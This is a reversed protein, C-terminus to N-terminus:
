SLPASTTGPSAAAEVLPVVACCQVRARGRIVQVILIVPMAVAVAALVYPM